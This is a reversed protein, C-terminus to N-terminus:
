FFVWARREAGAYLAMQSALFEKAGTISDLFSLSSQPAFQAGAVAGGGLLLLVGFLLAVGKM